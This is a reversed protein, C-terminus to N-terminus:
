AAGGLGASDRDISAAVLDPSQDMFFHDGPFMRATVFATSTASWGQLESLSVHPDASGGYAFTPVRIPSRGDAKYRDCAAFDARIIPVALGMLEKDQLLSDPMGNLSAILDVVEDDTAGELSPHRSPWGPARHASAIFLAPAIGQRELLRITELAVLAGMSHGYFIVPRDSVRVIASVADEALEDISQRAAEILRAGHGPYEVAMCEFSSSIQSSLTRFSAAVGGAHPFFVLRARSTGSPRLVRLQPGSRAVKM